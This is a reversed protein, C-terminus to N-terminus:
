RRLLQARLWARAVRWDREVTTESVNLYQSLELVTLGGFYRAEVIAAQRPALRELDRLATDLGLLDEEVAIEGELSEDFAVAVFPDGTSRKRARRRRAADILVRRMARAALAKFHAASLTGFGASGALKLWAENVLATPNLTLSGDGRKLTSAIRRLEKYRATFLADLARREDLRQERSETLGQRHRAMKEKLGRASAM